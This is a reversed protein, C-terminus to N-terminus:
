SGSINIGLINSLLVLIAVSLLIFVFGIVANTIQEQAAKLKDPNGRSTMLQYAAFSVLAFVALVSLPLAVSIIGNMFSSMDGDGSEVTSQLNSLADSLSSAYIKTNYLTM